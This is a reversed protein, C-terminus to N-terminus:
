VPMNDFPDDGEVPGLAQDADTSTAKEHSKKGDSKNAPTAEEELIEKSGLAKKDLDKFTM